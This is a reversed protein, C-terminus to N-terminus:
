RRLTADEVPAAEAAREGVLPLQRWVPQSEGTILRAGQRKTLYNWGWQAMVKFKNDFEILFNIHVFVWILWAPFGDFHLRGIDAVAENRGIVALMGKDKYRFPRIDKQFRRRRLADAVYVGQQMAVQAVGPLPRGDQEFHALDGIVFIEPHNPLSLNPGVMVRGMKDLEAGARRALVEGLPSAAVGAGWLVTYTPILTQENTTTNKVMVYDDAIETVLAQTQVTVGLEALSAAAARSLEEPFTALVRDLGEVLTITAAAPDFNRFEGRLTNRALEGLAGALEVGTPGGGVIVFTLLARRRDPDPEREAAEFALLVRRRITVADEITKLGPARDAWEEDRGFYHHRSGTAVILADYAVEDGDELVVVRREPDVDIVQGTLVTTNKQKKLVGRLPSAIDEPPLSGTAVQYLLPQFLHFNRRDILTVRAPADRMAQATYLGGFGGGVIVVREKQNQRM